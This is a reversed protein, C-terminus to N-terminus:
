TASRPIAPAGPGHLEDYLAVFQPATNHCLICAQQWVLGPELADRERVMVSYGKYRLTGDFKLFSLPLVRQADLPAAGPNESSVLEGVFDERYRGGIVKTIRFLSSVGAHTLSLYPQDARTELRAEDGNLRLSRGDFPAPLDTGNVDRTMRHM